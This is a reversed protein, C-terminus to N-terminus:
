ILKKLIHGEKRYINEIAKVRRRLIGRGSPRPHIRFPYGEFSRLLTTPHAEAPKASATFIGQASACPAESEDYCTGLNIQQFYSLTEIKKLILQCFKHVTYKINM